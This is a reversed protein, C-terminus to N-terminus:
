IGHASAHLVGASPCGRCGRMHLRLVNRLRETHNHQVTAGGVGAEVLQHVAGPVVAHRYPLRGGALLAEERQFRPPPRDTRLPLRVALGVIGLRLDDAHCRMAPRHRGLFGGPLPSLHMARGPLLECYLNFDFGSRRRWRHPAREKRRVGVVVVARIRVGAVSRPPGAAHLPYSGRCHGDLVVGDGFVHALAPALPLHERVGLGHLRVHPPLEVGLFPFFFVEVFSVSSALADRAVRPEVVCRQGDDGDVRPPDPVIEVRVRRVRQGFRM